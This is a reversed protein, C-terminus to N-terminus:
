HSVLLATILFCIAAVWEQPDEIKLSGIPPQFYMAFGFAAVVSAAMSESRGWKVAIWLIVLILSLTVTTNRIGPIQFCVALLGCVGAISAILTLARILIVRLAPRM